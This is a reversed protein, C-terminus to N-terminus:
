PHCNDADPMQALMVGPDQGIHGIHIQHANDIRMQFLSALDRGSEIRCRVITKFRQQVVNIRHTYDCGGDVM